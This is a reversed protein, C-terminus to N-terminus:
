NKEIVEFKRSLIGQSLITQILFNFDASHGILCDASKKIHGDGKNL